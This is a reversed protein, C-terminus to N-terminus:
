LTKGTANSIIKNQTLHKKACIILINEQSILQDIQQKYQM